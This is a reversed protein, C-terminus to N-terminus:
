RSLVLHTVTAFAIVATTMLQWVTKGGQSWLQVMLALFLGALLVEDMRAEAGLSHWDHTLHLCFRALIGLFGLSIVIPIRKEM